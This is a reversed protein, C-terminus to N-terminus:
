HSRLVFHACIAVPYTQEGVVRHQVEVVPSQRGRQLRGRSVLNLYAHLTELLRWFHSRLAFSAASLVILRAALGGGAVVDRHGVALPACRSRNLFMQSHLSSVSTFSLGCHEM